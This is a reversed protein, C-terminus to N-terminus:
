VSSGDFPTSYITGRRAQRMYENAIEIGEAKFRKTLPSYRSYFINGAGKAGGSAAYQIGTPAVFTINGHQFIGDAYRFGPGLSKALWEIGHTNIQDIATSLIRQKSGGILQRFGPWPAANFLLIKQNQHLATRISEAAFNCGSVGGDYVMGVPNVYRSPFVGPVAASAVACNVINHTSANGDYRLSKQRMLMDTVSMSLPIRLSRSKCIDFMRNYVKSGDYMYDRWGLATAALRPYYMWDRLGGQEMATRITTPHVGMALPAGVLAGASVGSISQISELMRRGEETEHMREFFSAFVLARAGGGSLSVHM